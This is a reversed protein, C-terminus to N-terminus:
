VFYKFHLDIRHFNRESFRLSWLTKLIPTTWRKLYLLQSKEQFRNESQSKCFAIEMPDIQM